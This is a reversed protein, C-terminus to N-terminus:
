HGTIMDTHPLFCPNTNNHRIETGLMVELEHIDKFRNDYEAMAKWTWQTQHSDTIKNSGGDPLFTRKGDSYSYTNQEKERRMAYSNEGAYKEITGEDWQLGFQSTIKFHEDLKLEADFISM